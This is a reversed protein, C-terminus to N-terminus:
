STVFQKDIQRSMLILNESEFPTRITFSDDRASFVLNEFYPFSSLLHMKQWVWWPNQQSIFYSVKQSQGDHLIDIFRPHSRPKNNLNKCPQSLFESLSMIPSKTHYIAATRKSSLQLQLSARTNVDKPSTLQVGPENIWQKTKQKQIKTAKVVTTSFKVRSTELTFLLTVSVISKSSTLQTRAHSCSWLPHLADSPTWITNDMRHGQEDSTFCKNM